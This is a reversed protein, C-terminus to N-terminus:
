FHLRIIFSYRQIPNELYLILTVSFMSILHLQSNEVFHCKWLLLYRRKWDRYMWNNKSLVQRIQGLIHIMYWFIANKMPTWSTGESRKMSVFINQALTKQNRIVVYQLTRNLHSNQMWILAEQKGREKRWFFSPCYLSSPYLNPWEWKFSVSENLYSDM